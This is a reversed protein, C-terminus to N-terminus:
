PFSWKCIYKITKDLLPFYNKAPSYVGITELQRTMSLSLILYNTKIASQWLCQNGHCSDEFSVQNLCVSWYSQTTFVWQTTITHYISLETVLPWIWNEYFFYLLIRSRWREGVKVRVWKNEIYLYCVVFDDWDSSSFFIYTRLWWFIGYFCLPVSM